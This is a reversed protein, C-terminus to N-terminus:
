AAEKAREAEAVRRRLTSTSYPHDRWNYYTDIPLGKGTYPKDRYGEDLIRVDIFGGSSRAYLSLFQELEGECCYVGYADVYKNGELRIQREILDESPAHKSARDISPDTQLGVFLFDCARAKAERMMLMHGAHLLDFAGCTFGIRMDLSRLQEIYTRPMGLLPTLPPLALFSPLRLSHM